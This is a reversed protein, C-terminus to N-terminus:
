NMYGRKSVKAWYDSAAFVSKCKPNDDDCNAGSLVSNEKDRQAELM